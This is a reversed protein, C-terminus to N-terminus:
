SALRIFIILGDELKRLLFDLTRGGYVEVRVNAGWIIGDVGFLKAVSSDLLQRGVLPVPLMNEPRYKQQRLTWRAEIAAKVKKALKRDQTWHKDQPDKSAVLCIERLNTFSTVVEVFGSPNHVFDRLPLMLGKVLRREHPIIQAAMKVLQNPAPTQLFIKDNEFNFWTKPGSQMTGFSQRFYHAVGINRAEKCVQILEPAKCLPELRSRYYNGEHYDDWRWALRVTQQHNNMAMNWIKIRLEAPLTPFGHFTTNARARDRHSRRVSTTRIKLAAVELAWLEAGSLQTENSTSHGSNTPLLSSVAFGHSCTKSQQIKRSAVRPDVMGNIATNAYTQMPPQAIIPDKPLQFDLPDMKNYVDWSYKPAPCM